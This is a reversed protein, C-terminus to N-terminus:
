PQVEVAVGNVLTYWTDPKVSDKGVIGAWVAIINYYDDREALFLANGAKGSAKGQYGTASAAGQYGTASAAGQDGTASAAGQDGTASAAGQDGTASAAGQYGTASAAGRTGTASAAGQDGTASAAGQYGTASAAGQDGTAGNEPKSRSFTYEIAAKILGPLGIEASIKITSSAVKSDEDRKALTGGQEVLAFRSGAPAYYGLVDLPYECAHFGSKCAKVPGDHIYTEGIAYQMGRCKMASDFGKYAVIVPSEKEKTM